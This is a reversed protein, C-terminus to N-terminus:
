LKSTKFKEYKRKLFLGDTDQYLFNFFAKNSRRQVVVSGASNEINKYRKSFNTLDVGKSKLIVTLTSIFSETSTFSAAPFKGDQLYVSGDGDFYGRIFHGILQEPVQEQTPFQLILSKKPICGVRILDQVMKKSCIIMKTYKKRDNYFPGTYGIANAFKILIEIDENQLTIQVRNRKLYVNGDAYLLGLFYAKDASDISEFYDDNQNNVKLYEWGSKLQIGESQLIVRVRKIPLGSQKAIENSKTGNKYLQVIELNSLKSIIAKM